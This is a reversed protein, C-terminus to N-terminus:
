HLKYVRWVSRRLDQRDEKHGKKAESYNLLSIYIPYTYIHFDKFDILRDLQRDPYIRKISRDVPLSLYSDTSCKVDIM